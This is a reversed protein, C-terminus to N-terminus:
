YHDFQSCNLASKQKDDDDDENGHNAVTRRQSHLVPGNSAAAAAAAHRCITCNQVLDPDRGCEGRDGALKLVVVGSGPTDHRQALTSGDGPLRHDRWHKAPPRLSVAGCVDYHLSATDAM